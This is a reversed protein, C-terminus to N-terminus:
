PIIRKQWLEKVKAQVEELSCDTNIVVDSNQLREEDSSQSRIRALSESESYSSRAKLRKLINPKSATTVWVEEVLPKWGVEVLLTADIVVVDTNQNRFQKIKNIVIETIRPHVIKNLRDLAEPQAFVLKGLKTRDISNDSKL